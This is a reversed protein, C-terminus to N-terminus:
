EEVLGKRAYRVFNYCLGIHPYYNTLEPYDNIYKYTLGGVLDFCNLRLHVSLDAEMVINAGWSEKAKKFVDGKDNQIFLYGLSAGPVLFLFDPVLGISYNLNFKPLFVFASTDVDHSEAGATKIEKDVDFFEL